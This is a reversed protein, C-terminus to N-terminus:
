QRTADQNAPKRAVLTVGALILALGAVHFLQMREGLFTWALIVGYAPVLHLFASARSAGIIEVVRTWAAYALESTFLGAYGIALVTPWTLQLPVGNAHEWIAFPLNAIASIVALAFLFGFGSIDPRLRLCASYIAWLSMNFLVLLDGGNFTLTALQALSGRAVITLVGLLSIAVGALQLRSLRDGFILFSALVILAPAVSNIVAVNIAATYNLAVFQLTGFMAGGTLALFVMTWPREAIASWEQRWSKSVIPALVLAVLLWRFTNLGAPPVVGAIARGVIHNGAWFLTGTALLACAKSTPSLM